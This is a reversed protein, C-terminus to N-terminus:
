IVNPLGTETPDVPNFLPDDVGYTEPVVSSVRFVSSQDMQLAEGSISDSSPPVLLMSPEDSTLGVISRLISIADTVGVSSDGNVDLMTVPDQEPFASLGSELGVIHRLVTIADSVEFQGSNNADGRLALSGEDDQISDFMMNFSSGENSIEEETALAASDLLSPSNELTTVELIYSEASGAVNFYLSSESQGQSSSVIVNDSSRRLLTKLTKHGGIGFDLKYPQPTSLRPTTFQYYRTENSSMVDGMALTSANVEGLDRPKSLETNTAESTGQITPADIKTTYSDIEVPSSIKLIYSGQSVGDLSISGEQSEGIITSQDTSSYLSLHIPESSPTQVMIQHNESGSSALEFKFFQELSQITLRNEPLINNDGSIVGLDFPRQLITNNISWSRGSRTPEISLNQFQSSQSTRNLALGKLLDVWGTSSIFTGFNQEYNHLDLNNGFGPVYISLGSSQRVDSTKAFIVKDLEAQATTASVRIQSPLSENRSIRSLLDGLDVCEQYEYSTSSYIDNQISSIQSNTSAHTLVSDTFSKITEALRDMGSTNIASLTNAYSGAYQNGFSEVMAQSLQEATVSSLNEQFPLFATTYDYGPGWIIEQSSIFYDTYDKIEYAIETMGMLCADFAVIDINIADKQAEKLAHVLELNEIHDSPQNTDSYDFNSGSVGGGHNWMVLAYNESPSEEAAWRIFNYLNTSDGTNVENADVVFNSNVTQQDLDPSIFARGATTWTEPSITGDAQIVPTEYPAVSGNASQDWLVAISSDHNSAAVAAEIENIDEFAYQDLDDATIYIMVTWDNLTIGNGDTNTNGVQPLVFDLSYNGTQGIASKVELIYDAGETLGHLSLSRNETSRIFTGNSDRLTLHVDGGGITSVSHSSTSDDTISFSYFDVDTNNHLSLDSLKTRGTLQGLTSAASHENNSEFQDAAISSSPATIRLSYTGTNGEYGYVHLYYDGEDLDDLSVSEYDDVSTSESILDGASNYLALDLDSLEHRFDIRAQHGEGGQQAIAFKFYDLDDTTHITLQEIALQSNVTRLETADNITENSEYSDASLVSQTSTNECEIDFTLRYSGADGTIKLLYDGGILNGIMLKGDQSSPLTSDILTTGTSDYLEILRRDDVLENNIQIFSSEAPDGVLTFQYWDVDSQNTLTLDDLTDISSIDNLVTATSTTNNSEFRDEKHHYTTLEPVEYALSYQGPTAESGQSIMLHYQGAEIGELSLHADFGYFTSQDSIPNGSQDLLSLNFEGSSTQGDNAREDKLKLWHLPSADDALQFSYYDVDGLYHTSLDQIVGRSQLTGFEHADDLSDNFEFRDRQTSLVSATNLSLDYSGSEGDFGYVRLFYEGEELGGIPIREVQDASESREIINGTADQLELDLDGSNNDMEISIFSSALPSENLLFQFFDQDTEDHISLDSIETVETLLGLQTAQDPRNNSVNDDFRDATQNSVDGQLTLSISYETQREDFRFVEIVYDGGDLNEFLIEENSDEGESSSIYTLGSQTDRYLMLDLDSDNREAALTIIGSSPESNNALNFKYQHSEDDFLEGSVSGSQSEGLDIVNNALVTTQNSNNDESDDSIGTMSLEYAGSHDQYGVVSLVYIGNSDNEISLSERSTCSTSSNIETLKSDNIVDDLLEGSYQYLYLDLDSNAELGELEFWWTQGVTSALLFDHRQYTEIRGPHSLYINQELDEPNIVQLQRSATAQDSNAKQFSLEYNGTIADFGYVELILDTSQSSPLTIAEDATVSFSGDIETLNNLTPESTSGNRQYLYLDLDENESLGTLTIIHQDPGPNSILFYDSESTKVSGTITFNQDFDQIDGLSNQIILPDDDSSITTTNLAQISVTLTSSSDSQNGANDEANYQFIDQINQDSVHDEDEHKYYATGDRKVYLVGYNGTIQKYGGVATYISHSSNTLTNFREGNISILALEDLDSDSDNDLLNIRESLNGEYVQISDAQLSITSNDSATITITTLDSANGNDDTARYLFQESASNIGDYKYIVTGDPKIYLTGHTGTVQKYGAASSLESDDSRQLYSFVTGDISHIRLSDGDNDHDNALLNIASSATGSTLIINDAVSTVTSDDVALIEIKIDTTTSLNGSDDSARYEFQDETTDSGNHKYFASGQQTIFLKGNTGEVERYGDDATYLTSESINLDSYNIGNVSDVLLTDGDSDSDNSLVLIDTSTEGERVSRHDESATIISEDQPTETDEVSSDIITLRVPTTPYASFSYEPYWPAVTIWEEPSDYSASGVILIDVRIEAQDKSFTFEFPSDLLVDHYSSDYNELSWQWYVSPGFDWELHLTQEELIGDRREIVLTKVITGNEPEKVTNGGEWTMNLTPQLFVDQVDELNINDLLLTTEAVPTSRHGTEGYHIEKLAQQDLLTFGPDGDSSMAGIYSMVTGNIDIEEDIDNDRGEHPHELGLAHGLEHFAVHKFGGERSNAFMYKFGFASEAMEIVAHRESGWYDGYFGRSYFTGAAGVSTETEPNQWIYLQSKYHDKPVISFEPEILQDTYALVDMWWQKYTEDMSEDISVYIVGDDSYLYWARLLSYPIWDGNTILIESGELSSDRESLYISYTGVDESLTAQAPVYYEGSREPTFNLTNAQLSNRRSNTAGPVARGEADFKYFSTNAILQGADDYIGHLTTALIDNNGDAHGYISVQYSKNAELVIKFWDQDGRTEIAGTTTVGINLAGTTETSARYDDAIFPKPTGGAVIKSEDVNTIRTLALNYFGTEVTSSSMVEIFHDGTYSPKYILQSDKSDETRDNNSTGRLYRGNKDHIGSLYPDNLPLDSQDATALDIQYISNSNLNVKIWDSDGQQEIEGSLEGGVNVEATTTISDVYDDEPSIITTPAETVKVEYTGIDNTSYAKVPIFYTATTEPEFYLLSNTGTGSDDDQTNAILSGNSTLIGSLVTDRLTGNGTPEGHLEILYEQDAQLTISFWDIDGGEELEGTVSDNVQAIGTTETNDSFDDERAISQFGFPSSPATPYVLTRISPATPASTTNEVWSKAELDSVISTLQRTIECSCCQCNAVWRDIHDQQDITWALDNATRFVHDEITRGSLDRSVSKPAAM